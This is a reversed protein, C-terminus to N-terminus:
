NGEIYEDMERGNIEGRAKKMLMNIYEDSLALGDIENLAIAVEANKIRKEINIEEEKMEGILRKYGITLKVLTRFSLEQENWGNKRFDHIKHRSLESLDGVETDTHESELLKNISSIDYNLM